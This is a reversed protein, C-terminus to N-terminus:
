PQPTGNLGIQKVASSQLGWKAIIAQYTGNALLKKMAGLIADRLQPETKAIAIGHQAGGFPPGVAKFTDPEMQSIYPVTESGQAVADYRGQKLGMRAALMDNTGEVTIAARGAAVCNTDSWGKIEAPYSTSRSTAIVKGCLDRGDKVDARSAQTMFQVGSNMYNVFDAQERRAPRDYIGSLIIDVRGTMLSPMLQEFTSDQWDFTVGLEKALAAGLDIDFGVYKGTAPEKFEMPPYVHNVGVRIVKAKAIKDPLAQSSANGAVAAACAFIVFSSRSKM